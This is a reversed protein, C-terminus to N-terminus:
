TASLTACKRGGCGLIWQDFSVSIQRLTHWWGRWGTKNRCFLMAEACAGCADFIHTTAGMPLELRLSLSVLHSPASNGSVGVCWERERCCGCRDYILWASGGHSLSEMTCAGTNCLYVSVVHCSVNVSYLKYRVSSKMHGRGDMTDGGWGGRGLETIIDTRRHTTRANTGRQWVVRWGKMM